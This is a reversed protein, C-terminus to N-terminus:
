ESKGTMGCRKLCEEDGYTSGTGVEPVKSGMEDININPNNGFAAKIMGKPLSYLGNVFNQTGTDESDLASILQANECGPYLILSM